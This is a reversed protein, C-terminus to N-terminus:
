DEFHKKHLCAVCVCVCVFVCVGVIVFVVVCIYPVQVIAAFLV